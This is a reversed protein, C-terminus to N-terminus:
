AFREKLRQLESALTVVFVQDGKELQTDESMVQSTDGRALAVLRTQDGLELDGARGVHAPHVELAFFRVGGSLLGTVDASEVGEVRDVVATAAERTPVLVDDLGLEKCIPAFDPDEIRVVVRGFGLSKGVLGAIVNDQDVDTLCFLFDSEGPGVEALTAPRSGDGVIFGCDLQEGLTEVREGDREIVVVDHGKAILDRAALVTIEGAGLLTVRM